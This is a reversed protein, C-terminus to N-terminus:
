LVARWLTVAFGADNKTHEDTEQVKGAALLGSMRARVSYVLIGTAAAIQESSRGEPYVAKLAALIRGSQSKALCAVKKAAERSTARTPDRLGRYGPGDPYNTTAGKPATNYTMRTEMRSNSSTKSLRPTALAEPKRKEYSAQVAQSTPQRKTRSLDKSQKM